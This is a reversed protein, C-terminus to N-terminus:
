RSCTKLKLLERQIVSFQMPFKEKNFIELASNFARSAEDVYRQDGKLEVFAAFVEGLVVQTEAWEEPARTRTREDLALGCFRVAEHLHRADRDIHAQMLEIVCFNHNTSAWRRPSRDHTYVTGAMQFATRSAALEDTSKHIQALALLAVGLNNNTMAWYMPAMNRPEEELAADFADIAEELLQPDEKMQGLTVLTNGLSNKHLAWETSDLERPAYKVANRQAAVAQRLLSEDARYKGLQHLAIGMNNLLAARGLPATKPPMHSLADKYVAVAEELSNVDTQGLVRLVSGLYNQIELRRLPEDHKSYTRLAERYAKASARLADAEMAHVGYEALVTGLAVQMDIKPRGSSSTDVLEILKQIASRLEGANARGPDFQGLYALVQARVVDQFPEKAYLPFEIANSAALKAEFTDDALRPVLLLRVLKESTPVVYGLLLIDAGSQGLWARADITAQREAETPQDAMLIESSRDFRVPEVGPINKLSEVILTEIDGDKDGEIHAIAVAFRDAPPRPLRREGVKQAYKNIVPISLLVGRYSVATVLLAVLAAIPLGVKYSGLWPFVETAAKVSKSRQQLVKWLRELWSTRETM